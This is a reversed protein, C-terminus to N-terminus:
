CELDTWAGDVRRPLGLPNDERLARPLVAPPCDQYCVPRLWRAIAHAGVSTHAASTTAPWPGGHHQAWSVAVGTPWGNWVLRGARERLAAVVPALAAIDAPEAHVTATLSGPLAAVARPLDDDTYHVLLCAPGFVEETAEPRAALFDVDALFLVPEADPGDQQRGAIIRDARRRVGQHFGEAIAPTLMRGGGALRDAIVTELGSGAPILVIGPKTCFQGVGLTFSAVLGDAIERPRAAAAARTVVVPNVSGLEGHFPIPDPRGSALDFLARGGTVSGTFGVARIDPHTVLARGADLGEVMAFVGPELVSHVVEALRRSLEPHGPHAKVVVPCGAALASATDGGVVGFAFPFNSAAFVAVPGVPELVSRLDPRPPTTTPDAHDITARLYSGERLVDAFLRFQGSARALEGVLRGEGLSTEADALPVLEGRANDLADAVALLMRGREVPDMGALWSSVAVAPGLPLSSTM